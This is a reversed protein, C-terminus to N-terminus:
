TKNDTENNLQLLRKYIIFLHEKNPIHPINAGLIPAQRKM